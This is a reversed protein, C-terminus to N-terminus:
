VTTILLNMHDPPSNLLPVMVSLRCRTVSACPREVSRVDLGRDHAATAALACRQRPRAVPGSGSYGGRRDQGNAKDDRDHEQHDPVDDGGHGAGAHCAQDQLSQQHRRVPPVPSVCPRKCDAEHAGPVTPQSGTYRSYCGAAGPDRLPDM